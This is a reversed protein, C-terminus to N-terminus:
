RKRSEFSSTEVGEVFLILPTRKKNKRRRRKRKRRHQTERLTHARLCSSIFRHSVNETNTHQQLLLRARRKTRDKEKRKQQHKFDRVCLLFIFVCTSVPPLPFKNHNKESKVKQKFLAFSFLVANRPRPPREKQFLSLIEREVFGGCCFIKKGKWTLCQQGSSLLLFLSSFRDRIALLFLLM